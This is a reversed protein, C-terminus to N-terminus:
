NIAKGVLIGRYENLFAEACKMLEVTVCDDKFVFNMTCNGFYKDIIQVYIQLKNETKWTASVACDYMFGDTTEVAGYTNSYGLQPFKCFLNQNITFPLKKEGQENVYTLIGGGSNDFTLSFESVNAGTSQLIKYKKGNIKDQLASKDEGQLCYLNLGQCLANLRQYTVVNEPLLEKDIRELIEDFYYNILTDYPYYAGQTDGNCVFIVDKEPNCITLQQGMGVFAFSHNRMRWIQYGYGQHHTDSHGSNNNCVVNSTAKRLYTENMLRKGNWVGYNMVFRAFALMDRATCLMASDGWSEGTPSKLIEATQFCGMENFLKEKLYELLTKGSLREVLVSLVQSGPSDYEWTTGAPRTVKSANFYLHVRDKDKDVFWDPCVCSTTMTLMDRITQQELYEPLKREIKDRFYDAIKNDLSLKGEEELLGIAVGVFSKTQSYQRHLFKPNFPKWYAECFIKEGRMMLVDHMVIGKGQLHKIFNEIWESKVGVSEPSVNVFM